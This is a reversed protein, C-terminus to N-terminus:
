QAAHEGDHSTESEDTEEQVMPAASADVSAEPAAVEISPASEV